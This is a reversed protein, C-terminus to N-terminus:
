ANCLTGAPSIWDRKMIQTTSSMFCPQRIHIYICWNAQLKHQHHVCAQKSHLDLWHSGQSIDGFFKMYNKRNAHTKQMNKDQGSNLM